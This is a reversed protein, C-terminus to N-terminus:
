MALYEDITLQKPFKTELDAVTMNELSITQPLDRLKQRYVKLRDAETTFLHIDIVPKMGTENARAMLGDTKVLEKNRVTRLETMVQEKAKPLDVEFGDIGKSWANRFRRSPLPNIGEDVDEFDVGEPTAKAFVRELWDVESEDKRRSKPAPVIVSVGGDERYIIRKM